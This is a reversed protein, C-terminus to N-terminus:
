PVVFELARRGDEWPRGGPANTEQAYSTGRVEQAVAGGQALRVRWSTAAEDCAGFMHVRVEYRGRQPAPFTATERRIGDIRCAINSDIDLSPDSAGPRRTDGRASRIGRYTVASGDPQYVILDLDVDRDWDLVVALPADPISSRVDLPLARRPGARGSADLGAFLLNLRAVPLDDAFDAVARFTLNPPLEVDAAEIPIIWYGRDGDLGVAVTRANFSVSGTFEKARQGQRIQVNATQLTAVAPADGNSAAPFPGPVFRANRVRMAAEMGSGAPVADGCSSALAVLAVSRWLNKM